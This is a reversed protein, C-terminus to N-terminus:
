SLSAIAWLQRSCCPPCLAGATAAGSSMNCGSWSSAAFSSPHLRPGSGEFAMAPTKLKSPPSSGTSASRSVLPVIIRRSPRFSTARLSPSTLPSIRVSTGSRRASTRNPRSAGEPRGNSASAPVTPPVTHSTSILSVTSRLQCARAIIPWAPAIRESKASLKASAGRGRPLPELAAIKRMKGCPGLPAPASPRTAFTGSGASEPEDELELACASSSGFSM